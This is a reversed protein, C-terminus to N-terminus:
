TCFSLAQRPPSSPYNRFSLLEIKVYYKDLTKPLSVSGLPLVLRLLAIVHYDTKSSGKAYPVRPGKGRVLNRSM